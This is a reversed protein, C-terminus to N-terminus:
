PAVSAAAEESDADPIPAEDQETVPQWSEDPDFLKIAAAATATKPGLDKQYVVGDQNVLFTMVGTVDYTAPTAILAFGGIMHDKAIYSYAGGPAHPGQGELIRFIYGHFPTPKGAAGKKYGEARARVFLPGMPSEPEGEATKWFLGDRKDPTSLFRRAYHQLKAGDPNRQYYERQADVYALSSQIAALENRGISRAIVEERGAATDFRWGADNKVLPFPFPVDDKGTVLTARADGDRTIAHGAEYREVFHDVVQQDLVPDGSQIIPKSAPGLIALLANGEHAKAAAVLADVAAEPSAFSKQAAPKAKAAALAAPAPAVIAAGAALSIAICPIWLRRIIMKM